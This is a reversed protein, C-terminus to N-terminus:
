SIMGEAPVLSFRLTKRDDSVRIQFGSYIRKDRKRVINSFKTADSRKNFDMWAFLGM